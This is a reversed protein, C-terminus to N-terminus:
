WRATKKEPGILGQALAHPLWIARM